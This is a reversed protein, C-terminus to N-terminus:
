KAETERPFVGTKQQESVCFEGRSEEANERQWASELLSLRPTRQRRQITMRYNRKMEKVVSKRRSDTPLRRVVGASRAMCAM